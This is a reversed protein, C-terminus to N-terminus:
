CSIQSPGPVSFAIVLLLWQQDPQPWSCLRPTSSRTQLTPEADVSCEFKNDSLNLLMAIPKLRDFLKVNLGGSSISLEISNDFSRASESIAEITRNHLNTSFICLRFRCVSIALSDLQVSHGRCFSVCDRRASSPCRSFLKGVEIWVFLSYRVWFYLEDARKKKKLFSVRILGIYLYHLSEDSDFDVSQGQFM